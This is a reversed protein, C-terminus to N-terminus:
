ARRGAEKGDGDKADRDDAARDVGLGDRRCNLGRQREVIDDAGAPQLRNDELCGCALGRRM